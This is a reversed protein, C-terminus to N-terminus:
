NRRLTTPLWDFFRAAQKVPLKPKGPIPSPQVPVGQYSTTLHLM